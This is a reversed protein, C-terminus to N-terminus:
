VKTGDHHSVVSINARDVVTISLTCNIRGSLHSDHDHSQSAAKWANSDVGCWRKALTFLLAMEGYM